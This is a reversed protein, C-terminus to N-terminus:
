NRKCLSLPQLSISVILRAKSLDTLLSINGFGVFESNPFVFVFRISLVNSPIRLTLETERRAM